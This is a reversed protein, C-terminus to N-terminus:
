GCDYERGIYLYICTYVHIYMYISTYAHVYSAHKSSPTARIHYAIVTIRTLSLSHSSFTSWQSAVHGIYQASLEDAREIGTDSIWMVPYAVADVHLM